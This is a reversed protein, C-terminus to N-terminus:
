FQGIHHIRVYKHIGFYHGRNINALPDSEIRWRQSPLTEDGEKADKTAHPSQKGDKKGDYYPLMRLQFQPYFCHCPGFMGRPVEFRKAPSSCEELITTLRDYEAESQVYLYLGDSTACVNTFSCLEYHFEDAQIDNSERRITFMVGTSDGPTTAFPLMDQVKVSERHLHHAHDPDVVRDSLESSNPRSEGGDTDPMTPSTAQEVAAAITRTADETNTPAAAADTEAFWTDLAHPPQSAPISTCSPTLNISVYVIICIIICAGTHWPSWVSTSTASNPHHAPSRWANM